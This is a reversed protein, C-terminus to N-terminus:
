KSPIKRMKQIYQHMFRIVDETPLSTIEVDMTKKAPRAEELRAYRNFWVGDHFTYYTEILNFDAENELKSFLIVPLHYAYIGKQSLWPYHQYFTTNFTALIIPETRTSLGALFGIYFWSAVITPSYVAIIADPLITYIKNKIFKGLKFAEIHLTNFYDQLMKHKILYSIREEVTPLTNVSQNLNKSKCFIGWALSSFDMFHTYETAQDQAHYMVLDLFVGTIPIDNGINQAQWDHTFQQLVDILETQWYKKIDFPSPINPYKKGFIDFVPNPVNREISANSSIEMGIFIKPIPKHLFRASQRLGRTFQEIQTYNRKQNEKAELTNHVKKSLYTEPTLQLWLMNVGSELIRNTVGAKLKYITKEKEKKEVFFSRLHTWACAIGHDEKIWNYRRDIAGKDLQAKQKQNKEFATEFIAPTKLPPVGGAFFRQKTTNFIDFWMQQLGRLLNLRISHELPVLRFNENIELSYLYNISTIFFQNQATKIYFALPYLPFLTSNASFISSTYPIQTAIIEHNEKIQNTKPSQYSLSRPPILTTHYRYSKESDGTLFHKVNTWLASSLAAHTPMDESQAPLYILNKVILTIIPMLPAPNNLAPLALVITKNELTSIQKILEFFQKVFPNDIANILQDIDSAEIKQDALTQATYILVEQPLSLVLTSYHQLTDISINEGQKIDVLFGVSEALQQTTNFFYHDKYASNIILMHQNELASGNFCLLFLPLLVNFKNFKM